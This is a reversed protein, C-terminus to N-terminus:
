KKMEEFLEPERSRIQKMEIEVLGDKEKINTIKFTSCPPFLVEKENKSSCHEISRGSFHNKIIFLTGFMREKLFKIAVKKETSTSLFSSFMKECNIQYIKPHMELLNIPVARYLIENSDTAPLKFLTDLLLNIYGKWVSLTDERDDSTLAKNLQAYIQGGIQDKISNPLHLTYFYIALCEKKSLLPYAKQAVVARAIATPIYSNFHPELKPMATSLLDQLSQNQYDNDPKILPSLPTFNECILYADESDEENNHSLEMEEM